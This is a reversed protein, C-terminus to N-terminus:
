VTRNENEIAEVLGDITHNLAVVNVHVGLEKAAKVTVPGICAVKVNRLLPELEAAGVAQAFNRVTSPSTFTIMDVGEAFIRKLRNPTLDDPIVTRYAVVEQVIAGHQTLLSPLKKSAIDARPLLIRKGRVDGLGYAIEESLYEDPVYDPKRGLRELADATASGIAAVKVKNLRDFPANLTKAREHFFRVGNVSTFVVWDFEEVGKVVRDLQDTNEPPLIAITPLFLAKAGLESLKEALSPAESEPRTVLVRMGSLPKLSAQM